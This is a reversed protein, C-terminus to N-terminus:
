VELSTLQSDAIENTENKLQRKDWSIMGHAYKIAKDKLLKSKLSTKWYWIQHYYCLLIFRWERKESYRKGPTIKFIFNNANM